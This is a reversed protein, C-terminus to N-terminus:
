SRFLAALRKRGSTIQLRKVRWTGVIGYPLYLVLLVYAIGILLDSAGGFWRDLFYQLLRFVAAGVVAGSITGVGGILIVLLATVTYGLGAVNPTVIPQHITHITGALAATMSAVVLVVLKFWLTNYGLMLARDENDRIANAVKGLPSDAIRTYLLYVLVVLALTILYFIFRENTSDLFRAPAPVGQLGIEAGAYDSLDSSQIVIWFMSAIGLTVLAFTIGKVRPLVVGFLLAQLVAATLVVLLAAPWGMEFTKLMIGFTYAGVAFFMAHGFSLLGTVGLILDYSLAYLSLIFIEIALGQLFLANGQDNALVSGIGRGDVVLSIVFPFLVMLGTVILLGRRYALWDRVTTPLGAGAELTAEPKSATM